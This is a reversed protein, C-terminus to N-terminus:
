GAAAVCSCCPSRFSVTSRWPMTAPARRCGGRRRAAPKSRPPSNIRCRPTAFPPRPRTVTADLAADRRPAEAIAAIADKIDAVAKTASRIPRAASTWLSACAAPFPIPRRAPCKSSASRRWWTRAAGAGAGRDRAANGGGGRARRSADADAGHRRPRRRRRGRRGRPHRRRHRHRRRAAPGRKGLVPGQEIHVEVYGVMRDPARAAEAFRSPDCGFAALAERRPVGDEGVDDLAKPDFTGALARSGGLTSAFRVGEEDGFAIVEIAFPFRKGAKFAAKVVEIATVVGAARPVLRCQARYRHALRSSPASGGDRAEM